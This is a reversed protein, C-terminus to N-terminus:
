EAHCAAYMLPAQTAIVDIDSHDGVFGGIGGYEFAMMRAAGWSGTQVNTTVRDLWPWDASTLSLHNMLYGDWNHIGTFHLEQLRSLPLQTLYDDIAMGIYHASIRAHAVDFLFGCNATEVVQSILDPEIGGRLHKNENPHYPANEVIVHERGFQRIVLEVDALMREFIEDRHAVTPIEDVPIHPLYKAKVELHLNVFQTATNALIHEIETWDMTQVKGSGAELEFHVKVPRLKEAAAIMDPWPPTKFYDIEIKGASLLKDAENSYNIAFEM